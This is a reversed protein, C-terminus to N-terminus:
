KKETYGANILSEKSAKFSIKDGKGSFDQPFAKQLDSVKAVTYDVTLTQIIFGDKTEVSSTVGKVASYADSAEKIQQLAVSESVILKSIEFENKATQKTVVDGKYYYTLTSTLGEQKLEFTATEEKTCGLLVFLATFLVAFLKMAKKM